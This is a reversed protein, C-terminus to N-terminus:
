TKTNTTITGTNTLAGSDALVPTATVEGRRKKPFGGPPIKVTVSEETAVNAKPVEFVASKRVNPREPTEVSKDSGSSRGDTVVSGSSTQQVPGGAWPRLYALISLIAVTAAITAYLKTKSM